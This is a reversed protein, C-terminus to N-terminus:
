KAGIAVDELWILGHQAYPRDAPIALRELDPYRYMGTLLAYTGGPTDEPIHLTVREQVIDGRQWLSSAFADSALPGDVQTVLTEEGTDLLHVFFNYDVSPSNLAQWVLTLGLSRDGEEELAYGRLKIDDGTQVELQRYPSAGGEPKFRIDQVFINLCRTLSSSLDCDRSPPVNALPRNLSCSPDGQVSWCAEKVQFDIVNYGQRLKIGPLFYRMQQGIVITGTEEDNITVMLHRPRDGSLATIELPGSMERPAVIVLRARRSLWRGPRDLLSEVWGWGPENLAYLIENPPSVPEVQYLASVNDELLPHGLLRTLQATIREDAGYNKQHLVYSVGRQALLAQAAKPEVLPVIDREQALDGTLWSFMESVGPDQPLERSVYGSMNPWEHSMQYFEALHKVDRNGLPVNLVGGQPSEEALTAVTASTPIERTRLPWMVLYEGALILAAVGLWAAARWPTKRMRKSNLWILIGQASLVALAVSTVLNFRGPTRGIAFIPLKGLIAYPLVIRSEIGEVSYVVPDGAVKLYPGLALVMMMVAMSAWLWSRPSRRVLALSVLVLPLLGLYALSEWAPFSHVQKAFGPILGLAKLIPNTTAPTFYSLLDASLMLTGGEMVQTPSAMALNILPLFFPLLMIAGVGATVLAAQWTPWHFVRPARNLVFHLFYLLTWPLILYPLHTVHVMSALALLLGTRLAQRPLPNLLTRRLSRMYLLALFLSGAELHGALVNAVRTPFLMLLLGGFLAASRNKVIDYCLLYGAYGTLIYSFLLTINYAAVPPFTVTLPLALIPILLMSWRIPSFYGNPYVLTSFYAPNSGEFLARKTFWLSWVKQLQDGHAYGPIGSSLRTILPYTVILTVLTYIGFIVIGLLRRQSPAPQGDWWTKLRAYAEVIM